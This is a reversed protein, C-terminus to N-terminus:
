IIFIGVLSILIMDGLIIGYVELNGPSIASRFDIAMKYTILGLIYKRHCFFSILNHKEGYIYM